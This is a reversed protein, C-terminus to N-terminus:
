LNSKTVTNRVAIPVLITRNQIDLLTLDQVNEEKYHQSIVQWWNLHISKSMM